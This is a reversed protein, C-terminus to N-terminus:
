PVNGKFINVCKLGQKQQEKIPTPSVLIQLLLLLINRITNLHSVDINLKKSVTAVVFPCRAYHTSTFM